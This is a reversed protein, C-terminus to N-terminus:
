PEKPLFMEAWLATVTATALSFSRTILDHDLALREYRSPWSPPFPPLEIPPPLDDRERWVQTVAVAVLVPDLLEHECLIVLDVLDRVRSNEREGFDKAMCHFKEVAHRSLDVLEITPADIGAFELTNSIAMTETQDLEHTRPSVDLQVSDFFRGALHATVKSRWTVHGGGDEM